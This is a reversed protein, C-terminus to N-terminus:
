GGFKYVVSMRTATDTSEFGTPPNTDYRYEFSVRASLSAGLAATLAIKDSFQSSEEAYIAQATNTLTVKDNILWTLDTNGLVSFSEVTEAENVVVGNLTEARVEDVKIGPGGRVSWVFADTDYLRWGLGGGLFYRTEFGSFEDREYSAKGFAFGRDSLQYDLAGSFYIRNETEAGDTEGYDITADGVTVWRGAKYTLNVGLGVDTTDTNGSSHGASLSGEGTLGEEVIEALVPQGLLSLACLSALVSFRM